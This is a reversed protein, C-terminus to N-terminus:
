PRRVKEITVGVQRCPLELREVRRPDGGAARLAREGAQVVVDVLAAENCHLLLFREAGLTGDLIVSGPLAQARGAPLAAPVGAAPFHATVGGAADLGILFAFGPEGTSVLFRVRDGPALADGALVPESHGDPRRVVVDLGLTGKSRVVPGEPARGRPLAFLGIAAALAALGALAPWPRRPARPGRAPAPPAPPAPVVRAAPPPLLEPEREIARLRQSCAPCGALHSRVAEEEPGGAVEGALWRDLVLDSLCREPRQREFPSLITM